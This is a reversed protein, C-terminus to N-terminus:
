NKNKFGKNFLIKVIPISDIQYNIRITKAFITKLELNKIWTFKGNKSPM